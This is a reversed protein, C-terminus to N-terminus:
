FSTFSTNSTQAVLLAQSLALAKTTGLLRVWFNLSKEFRDIVLTLDTILGISPYDILGVRM